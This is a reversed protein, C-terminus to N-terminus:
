RASPSTPPVFAWHDIMFGALVPGIMHGSSYGLSLTSFNRTREAPEGLAGALNQAAVNFFVFGIGILPTSVFLAPLTPYVAPILLGAGFTIIGGLMPRRSGHRDSIRGVMLAFALQFVSYAAILAGILLPGAGLNLALLAAVVRSGMHGGQMALTLLTVAFIPKM